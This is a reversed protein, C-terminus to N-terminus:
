FSTIKRSPHFLSTALAITPAEPWVVQILPTLKLHFHKKKDKKKPLPMKTSSQPHSTKKTCSAALLACSSSSFRRTQSPFLQPASSFVCLKFPSRLPLTCVLKPSFEPTELKFIATSLAFGSNCEMTKFPSVDDVVVPLLREWFPCFQNRSSSSPGAQVAQFTFVM